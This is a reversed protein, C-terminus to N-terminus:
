AVHYDLTTRLLPGIGLKVARNALAEGLEVLDPGLSKFRRELLVVRSDMSVLRVAEAVNAAEKAMEQTGIRDRPGGEADDLECFVVRRRGAADKDLDEKLFHEGDQAQGHELFAKRLRGHLNVVLLHKRQVIRPVSTKGDLLLRSDIIDFVPSIKEGTVPSRDLHAGQGFRHSLM